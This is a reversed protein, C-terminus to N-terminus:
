FADDEGQEANVRKRFTSWLGLKTRSAALSQRRLGESAKKWLRANDDYTASKYPRAFVQVFRSERNLGALDKSDMALLGQVVDCTYMGEPWRLPRIESTPLPSDLSPTPPESASSRSTSTLSLASPPVSSVPSLELSSAGGVSTDITLRPRQHPRPPSGDDSREDAASRKNINLPASPVEVDSDSDSLELVDQASRKQVKLATRVASREAKLNHRIHAPAAPSLFRTLIDDDKPGHVGRCRLILTSDTSVTHIYTSDIAMWVRRQEVFTELADLDEEGLAKCTKDDSSLQYSPWRVVTLESANVSMVQPDGGNLFVLTFRQIQRVDAFPRRTGGQRIHFVSSSPAVVATSHPASASSPAAGGNLSMWTENLQTTIAFPPARRKAQASVAPVRKRPGSSGTAAPAAARGLAPTTAMPSLGGHAPLSMPLLTAPPDPSHSLSRLRSPGPSLALAFDTAEQEERMMYRSLEEELSLEPSPPTIGLALDLQRGAEAVRAAEQQEYAELAAFPRLIDTHMQDFSLYPSPLPSPLRPAHAQLPPQPLPLPLVAPPPAQKRRRETEHAAHACSGTLNCHRRCMSRSCTAPVRTSKCGDPHRCRRTPPATQPLSTRPTNASSPLAPLTASSPLTPSSSASAIAKPKGIWRFVVDHLGEECTIYKSGPHKGGRATLVPCPAKCQPCKIYDPKTSSFLPSAAPFSM